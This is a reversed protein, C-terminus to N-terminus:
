TRLSYGGSSELLPNLYRDIQARDLTKLVFKRAETASREIEAQNRESLRSDTMTVRGTGLM